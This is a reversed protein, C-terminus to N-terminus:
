YPSVEKSYETPEYTMLYISNKVPFKDQGM